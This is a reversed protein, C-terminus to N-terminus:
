SFEHSFGEIDVPSRKKSRNEEYIGSGQTFYGIETVAIELPNDDLISKCIIPDVAFLLEFDEGDSYAHAVREKFPLSKINARFPLLHPCLVASCGSETAILHADKAIGDSIDAMAKIEFQSVLQRAEKIRPEFSLHHGDLSGGLVGTVLLRDGPSAGSRLIPGSPGPHGLITINVVLPGNWSNTDGGSIAVDYTEALDQIGRMVEKGIQQGGSKPLALSIFIHKPIGGMAAIDSLSVALSKRGVLQPGAHELHFHTGDMLMDTSVLLDSQTTVVACDDGIGMGPRVKKQQSRIWSILEAESM